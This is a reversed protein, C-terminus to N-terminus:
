SLIHPSYYGQAHGNSFNRVVYPYKRKYKRKGSTIHAAKFADGATKRGLLSHIRPFFYAGAYMKM